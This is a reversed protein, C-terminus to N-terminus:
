AELQGESPMLGWSSRRTPGPPKTTEVARHPGRTVGLLYHDSAILKRGDDLKAYTHGQSRSLSAIVTGDSLIDGLRLKMAKVQVRSTYPGFPNFVFGGSATVLRPIHRPCGALGAM